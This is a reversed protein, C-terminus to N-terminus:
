GHPANTTAGAQRRRGAAQPVSSGAAPVQGHPDPGLTGGSARVALRPLYTEWADRHADRLEQTALDHHRLVLWTGGDVLRLTVEVRTSGPPLARGGPGPQPHLVHAAADDDAWGWTFALHRPPSVDTFVGAAAFGDAMEVRYVGGPAADMVARSGMWQVYRAPDTLFGFVTDPDAAVHVCVEVHPRETATM